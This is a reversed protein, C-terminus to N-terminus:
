LLERKATLWLMEAVLFVTGAVLLNWWSRQRLIESRTLEVRTPPPGARERDRPAQGAWSRVPEVSKLFSLESELPSPNVAIMLPEADEAEVTFAYLGPQSPAPFEARANALTGSRVVREGDRLLYRAGSQSNPLDLVCQEGPQYATPFTSLGRANQLCLDLFPIFTPHIPWDTEDRDMSFASVFFRGKAGTAQMFLPEGSEAVALPVARGAKMRRWRYVQVETVQGFDPSRFPRFIPHDGFIYNLGTRQSADGADPVPEIGYQRLLERVVPGCDELFLLVGRGSDLHRALLKQVASSELYSSELCLVDAPKGRDLEAAAQNAELVETAWYGRMVDASLATRLYRSRAFLLVRGESVPPLSFFARNDGELEDPKGRIVIEGAIGELPDATWQATSLLSGAPGGWEVPGDVIKRGNAHLTVHAEHVPGQHLIEVTFDVMARDGTFARTVTPNCVALNSPPAKGTGQVDIDIGGPCPPAELVRAWQNIQADGPVVLRRREGLTNALLDDAQRLAALYSGREFSPSLARVRGAATQLDDAFSAVVRPRSTLEIVAAQVGTGLGALEKALDDRKDSFTGGAQHSLTNDLLYVRSETPIPAVRDPRYPWAFAGVLLAVALLRLLLLLPNQLRSRGQQPVRQSDVFRLASFRVVNRPRRQRRHLWIPVALAFGALFALPYLFAWPM